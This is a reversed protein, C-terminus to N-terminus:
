SNKLDSIKIGNGTNKLIDNKAIEVAKIFLGKLLITDKNANYIKNNYIKVQV